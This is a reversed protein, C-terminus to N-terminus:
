SNLFVQWYRVGYKLLRCRWCAGQVRMNKAREATPEDLKGHRGRNKTQQPQEPGYPPNVVGGIPPGIPDGTPPEDIMDEDEIFGYSVHKDPQQGIYAEKKPFEVSGDVRPAPTDLTDGPAIM